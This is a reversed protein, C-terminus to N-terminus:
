IGEQGSEKPGESTGDLGEGLEGTDEATKAKGGDSCCQLAFAYGRGSGPQSENGGERERREQLSTKM